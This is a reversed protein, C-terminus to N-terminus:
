NMYCNYPNLFSTLLLIRVDFRPLYEQLNATLKATYVPSMPLVQESVYTVSLKEDINAWELRIEYILETFKKIGIISM